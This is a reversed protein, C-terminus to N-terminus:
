VLGPDPCPLEWYQTSFQHLHLLVKLLSWHYICSGSLFCQYPRSTFNYRYAWYCLTALCMWSTSCGMFYNVEWLNDTLYRGKWKWSKKVAIKWFEPAKRRVTCFTKWHEESMPFFFDLFWNCALWAHGECFTASQTQYSWIKVAEETLSFYRWRTEVRM